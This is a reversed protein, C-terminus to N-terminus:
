SLSADPQVLLGLIRRFLILPHIFCPEFDAAVLAPINVWQPNSYGSFPSSLMHNLKNLFNLM